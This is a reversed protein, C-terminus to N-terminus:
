ANAMRAVMSKKIRDDFILAAIMTVANMRRLLSIVVYLINMLIGSSNSNKVIPITREVIANPIFAPRTIAIKPHMILKIKPKSILINESGINIPYEETAITDYKSLEKSTANTPKIAVNILLM